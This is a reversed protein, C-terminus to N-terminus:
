VETCVRWLDSMRWHILTRGLMFVRDEGHLNRGEGLISTMRKEDFYIEYRVPKKYSELSSNPYGGNYWSRVDYPLDLHIVQRLSREDFLSGINRITSTWKMAATLGERQDSFLGEGACKMLSRYAFEVLKECDELMVMATYKRLLNDGIEGRLLKRYNEPASLFRRIDDRSDFLEERTEGIFAHYIKSLFSGGSKVIEWIGYIYDYSSIGMEKLHLYIIDLQETSFLSTMFAFGRCDLYDSFPM